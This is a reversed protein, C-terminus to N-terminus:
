PHGGRGRRRSAAGLTPLTKFVPAEDTYVTSGEKLGDRMARSVSSWDKGAIVRTMVDGDREIMGLVVAKDDHGM